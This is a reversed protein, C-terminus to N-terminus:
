ANLRPVIGAVTRLTGVPEGGGLVPASRLQTLAHQDVGLAELISATITSRARDGGDSVKVAIGVASTALGGLQVGEAGDKAIFGPVARMMTTVDREEGAVMQPFARMAAAVRAEATHDPATALRAYARAMGRLSHALLPTGCGDVTVAVAREGTLDAVTAEVLRQLPHDARLYDDTSWGNILCTAIMAAHKGSCNQALRSPEGGGRVFVLREAVGYPLDQVNRLAAADTGHMELIERAGARHIPAGSHSAASLALLHDPLDLGARVMAVAQLPKLASRPYMPAAGDGGEALVHGEPSVVAFSGYHVGEILPGRTVEVLPIHRVPRALAPATTM